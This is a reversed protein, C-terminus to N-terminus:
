RKGNWNRLWDIRLTANLTCTRWLHHQIEFIETYPPMCHPSTTPLGQLLCCKEVSGHYISKAFREQLHLGNAPSSTRMTGFADIRVGRSRAEHLGVMPFYAKLAVFGRGM